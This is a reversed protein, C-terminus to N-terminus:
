KGPNEGRTKEAYANLQFDNNENSLEDISLALIYDPYPTKEAAEAM